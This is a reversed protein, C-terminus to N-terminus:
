VGKSKSIVAKTSIPIFNQNKYIKYTIPSYNSIKQYFKRFSKKFVKEGDNFGHHYEKLLKEKKKEFRDILLPTEPAIVFAKGEKELEEIRKKIKWIFRM